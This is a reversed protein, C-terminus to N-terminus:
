TLKTHKNPLWVMLEAPYSHGGDYSQLVPYRYNFEVERFGLKKFYQILKRDRKWEGTKNQKQAIEFVIMFGPPYNQALFDEIAKTADTPVLGRRDPDRICLYEFFFINEERFYSYQLYGIVKSSQQIAFCKFEDALKDRSHDIWYLIQREPNQSIPLITERYISFAANLRARARDTREIPKLDM